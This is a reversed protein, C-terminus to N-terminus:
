DSKPKDSEASGEANGEAAAAAREQQKMRMRTSFLQVVLMVGMMIFNGYKQFFTLQPAIVIRDATFLTITESGKSMVKLLFRNNNVTSIEYSEDGNHPNVGFSIYIGKSSIPIFNLKMFQESDTSHKLACTMNSLLECVVSKEKVIANSAIDVYDVAFLSDASKTINYMYKEPNEVVEGGNTSLISSSIVWSGPFFTDVTFAPERAPVSM